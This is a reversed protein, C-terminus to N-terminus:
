FYDSVNRVKKTKLTSAKWSPYKKKSVTRISIPFNTFGYGRSECLSFDILEDKADDVCQFDMDTSDTTQDGYSTQSATAVYLLVDDEGDIFYKWGMNQSLRYAWATTTKHRNTLDKVIIKMYFIDDSDMDKISFGNDEYEGTHFFEAIEKEPDSYHLDIKMVIAHSGMTGDQPCNKSNLHLIAKLRTPDAEQRSYHLNMCVADQEATISAYREYESLPSPRTLINLKKERISISTDLDDDSNMFPEFEKAFGNHIDMFTIYLCSLCNNWRGAMTHSNGSCECYEPGLKPEHNRISALTTKKRKVCEIQGLGQGLICLSNEFAPTLGNPTPPPAASLTEQSIQMLAFSCIILFGITLILLIRTGSSM